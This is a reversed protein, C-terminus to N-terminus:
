VRALWEDYSAQADVMVELVRMEVVSRDILWNIGEELADLAEVCKNAVGMGGAAQACSRGHPMAFWHELEEDTTGAQAEPLYGFIRGGDNNLVLIRLDIPDTKQDLHWLGNIDYLFATDGTVLITFGAAKAFGAATSTCGDIGATGRNANLFHRSTLNQPLRGILRVPMSNALWISAADKFTEYPLASLLAEVVGLDTLQEAPAMRQQPLEHKVLEYYADCINILGRAFPKISVFNNIIFIKDPDGYTHTIRNHPSILTVSKWTQARLWKRVRKNTIGMGAVILHDAVPYPVKGKEAKALLLDLPLGCDTEHPGDSFFKFDGEYSVNDGFGSVVMMSDGEVGIELTPDEFEPPPQFSTPRLEVHPLIEYLPEEFPINLHAPGEHQELAKTILRKAFGYEKDKTTDLPLTATFDIHKGFLNDQFIAQGEQQDVAYAPRDATLILLRRRQFYAEAVAPLLNAAATGSTTIVAVLGDSGEALGLAFYGASREDVVRHCKFLGSRVIALTLPASRSGPCIVVHKIGAEHMM